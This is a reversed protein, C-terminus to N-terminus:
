STFPKPPPLSLALEAAVAAAKRDAADQAAKEAAIRADLDRLYDVTSQQNVQRRSPPPYLPSTLPNWNKFHEEYRRAQERKEAAEFPDDSSM